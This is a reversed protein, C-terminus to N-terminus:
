KNCSLILSIIVLKKWERINYKSVYDILKVLDYVYKRVKRKNNLITIQLEHSLVPTCNKSDLFPSM